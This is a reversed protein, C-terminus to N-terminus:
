AQMEVARDLALQMTDHLDTLVARPSSFNEDLLPGIAVTPRELPSGYQLGVPMIAVNHDGAAAEASRAARCVMIGIGSDLPQMRTPDKRRSEPAETGDAPSKDWRTGEPFIALHNGQALRSGLLSILRRSAAGLLEREDSTAERDKHQIDDTRFAPVSGMGEIAWRLGPAFLSTKTPIVTNRRMPKLADSACVTAALTMPDTFRYHNAAMIVVGGSEFHERIGTEADGLYEVRPRFAARMLFQGARGVRADPDRAEYYDYLERYRDLQVPPKRSFRPM